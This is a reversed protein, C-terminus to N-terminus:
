NRHVRETVMPVSANQRDIHRGGNQEMGLFTRTNRITVVSLDCSPDM